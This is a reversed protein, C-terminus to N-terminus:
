IFWGLPLGVIRRSVVTPEKVDYLVVGFPARDAYESLFTELHRLDLHGIRSRSKVEIPLLRARHEVVFDVEAGSATRWYHLRPSPRITETWARLGCLVLNEALSGLLPSGKLVRLDSVGALHSALGTDTWFLKPTKILRRSRNSFFAPLRQIQFTTELLNLYRHATPQTLGADRGLETQNLLRGVRHVSLMMLRHFDPLSSVQSVERLDRELYTRVYGEFWSTREGATRALAAPPMGGTLIERLWDAPQLEREALRQIVQLPRRASLVDSWSPTRAEGRKEAATFPCLRVYIARGALSESVRRMLLLNASGTLLFRGRRRRRDVEQKIAHLLEPVRQIEDITTAQGGRALLDLPESRAMAVLDLDDLTLFTRRDAGPLNQVLTTKGTQRAGILVVVPQEKLHRELIGAM